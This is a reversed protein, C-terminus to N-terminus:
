PKLDWLFIGEKFPEFCRRWLEECGFDIMNKKFEELAEERRCDDCKGLVQAGIYHIRQSEPMAPICSVFDELILDATETTSQFGRSRFKFFRMAIKAKAVADRRLASQVISLQRNEAEEAGNGTPDVLVKNVPDYYV